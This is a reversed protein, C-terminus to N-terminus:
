HCTVLNIYLINISVNLQPMDEGDWMSSTMQELVLGVLHYDPRLCFARAEDGVYGIKKAAVKLM